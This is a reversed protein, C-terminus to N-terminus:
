VSVAREAILGTSATEVSLVSMCACGMRAIKPTYRQTRRAKWPALADVIM